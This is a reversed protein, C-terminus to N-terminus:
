QPVGGEDMWDKRAKGARDLDSKDVTIYAEAAKLRAILQRIAQPNAAIIYAADRSLGSATAAKALQELADLDVNTTM